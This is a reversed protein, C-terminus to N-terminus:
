GHKQLVDLLVGPECFAVQLVFCLYAPLFVGIWYKRLSSKWRSFGCPWLIPLRCFEHLYRGVEARIDETGAGWDLCSGSIDVASTDCRYATISVFNVHTDATCM